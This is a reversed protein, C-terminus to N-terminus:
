TVRRWQTGQLNDDLLVGLDALRDRIQDAQQWQKAERLITRQEVLLNVYPSILEEPSDPISNLYIMVDVLTERLTEEAQRIMQEHNQTRASQMLDMVQRLYSVVLKTKGATSEKLLERRSERIV